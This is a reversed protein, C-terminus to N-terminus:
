MLGLIHAAREVTWLGRLENLFVAWPWHRAIIIQTAPWVGCVDRSVCQTDHTSRDPSSTYPGEARGERQHQNTNMVNPWRSAVIM